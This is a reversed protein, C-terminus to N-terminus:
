DILIVVDPQFELIDQFCFKFNKAITKAHAIVEFIGMYATQSYHKVLVAGENQMLNGGWCRVSAQQDVIKL